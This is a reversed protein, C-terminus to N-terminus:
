RFVCKLNMENLQKEIYKKHCEMHMINMENHALVNKLLSYGKENVLKDDNWFVDTGIKCGTIVDYFRKM